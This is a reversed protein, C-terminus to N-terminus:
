EDNSEKYTRVTVSAGDEGWEKVAVLRVVQKDDVYVVGTMGDLLARALKDLDLRPAALKTKKPRAVRFTVAVEVPAPTPPASRMALRAKWAVATQWAKCRANDNVVIVKGTSKSRFAKASGKTEPRGEVGFEAITM